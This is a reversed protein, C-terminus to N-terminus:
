TSELESCQILMTLTDSQVFAGEDDIYTAQEWRVVCRASGKRIGHVGSGAGDALIGPMMRWGAEYMETGPDALFTPAAADDRISDNTEFSIECGALTQGDWISQFPGRDRALSVNPVAELMEYLEDCPDPQDASPAALWAVFPVVCWVTKLQSM